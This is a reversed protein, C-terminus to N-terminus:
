STRERETNSNAAESMAPAFARSSRARLDEVAVAFESWGSFALRCGETSTLTGRPAPASTDLELTARALAEQETAQFDAV